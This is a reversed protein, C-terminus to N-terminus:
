ARHDLLLPALLRQARGQIQLLRVKVSCRGHQPRPETSKLRRPAITARLASEIVVVGNAGSNPPIATVRQCRPRSAENVLTEHQSRNGHNM